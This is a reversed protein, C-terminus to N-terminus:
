YIKPEIIGSLYAHMNFALSELENEGPYIVLEGLHEIMEILPQIIDQNYALGGTLIIADLNGKTIAHLGGIEKAIQYVMAKIVRSAEVRGSSLMDSVEEADKTNLYSFMGGYGHILKKLEEKTYQGSYALEIVSIVPLSGTREPSFPGDGDLANNVDVVKGKKHYGVSIGGGLHAVILHLDEYPVGIKESYKRAVAKQNLAHFLSRRTVGNLGSMKAVSSMEDVVVPDAIYAKKGVQAALSSAILGGLNSAHSGYKNTKLDEIMAENVEYLGSQLPRLLGGRGIFGDIDTLKIQYENLFDLILTQRMPLQDILHEFTLMEGDDHRITEKAIRKHDHFVAVKTSTSGPNITLIKM